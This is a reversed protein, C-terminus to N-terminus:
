KMRGNALSNSFLAYCCTALSFFTHNLSALATPTGLFPMQFTENIAVGDIKSYEEGSAMSLGGLSDLPLVHTAMTLREAVVAPLMDRLFGLAM